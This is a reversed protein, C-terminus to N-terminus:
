HNKPWLSLTVSSHLLSCLFSSYSRHTEDCVNRTILDRIPHDHCTQTLLSNCIPNQRPFRLSLGGPIGTHLHSSLILTPRWAITHPNSQISKASSLSAHPSKHIHYQIKPSWLIHSMEQNAPCSTAEWSPKEMSDTWVRWSVVCTFRVHKASALQKDVTTNSRSSKSDSHWFAVLWPLIFLTLKVQM